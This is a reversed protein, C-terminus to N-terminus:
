ISNGVIDFGEGIYIDSNTDELVVHGDHTIYLLTYIEGSILFRDGQRYMSKIQKTEIPFSM